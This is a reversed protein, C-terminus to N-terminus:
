TDTPTEDWRNRPALGCLWNLAYHREMIISAAMHYEDKPLSRFPKGLFVFDEGLIKQLDGQRHAERATFRVIDDYTNLGAEKMNADPKLPPGDEILQRTRVRWHWLEILDRRSQIDNRPRLDPHKSRPGIKQIPIRDLLGPSTEEDIAPWETILNLAWMIMAICEMRWSAAMRAYEDMELGSSKLFAREVPSAYKWLGSERM